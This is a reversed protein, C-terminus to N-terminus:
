SKINLYKTKGNNSQKPEEELLEDRLEVSQSPSLFCIILEISYRIDFLFVESPISSTRYLTRFNNILYNLYLGVRM